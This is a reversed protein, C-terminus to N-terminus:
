RPATPFHTHHE